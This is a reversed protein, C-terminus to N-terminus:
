MSPAKAVQWTLGDIEWQIISAFVERKCDDLESLADQVVEPGLMRVLYDAVGGCLSLAVHEYQTHRFKLIDKLRVMKKKAIETARKRCFEATGVPCGLLKNWGGLMATGIDVGEMRGEILEHPIGSDVLEQTVTFRALVYPPSVGNARM